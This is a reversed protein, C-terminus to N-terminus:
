NLINKIEISGFELNNMFEKLVKSNVIARCYCSGPVMLIFKDEEHYLKARNRNNRAVEVTTSVKSSQLFLLAVAVM